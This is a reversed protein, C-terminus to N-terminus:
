VSFVMMALKNIIIEQVVIGQAQKLAPSIAAFEELDM